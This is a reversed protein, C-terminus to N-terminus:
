REKYIKVRPLREHIMFDHNVLASNSNYFRSQPNVLSIITIGPLATDSQISEDTNNEVM